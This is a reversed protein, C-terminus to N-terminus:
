RGNRRLQRLPQQLPLDQASFVQDLQESRARERLLGRVLLEHLARSAQLLVRLQGRAEPAPILVGRGRGRLVGVRLWSRASSASVFRIVPPIIMIVIVITIM